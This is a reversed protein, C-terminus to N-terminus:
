PNIEKNYTGTGSHTHPHINYIFFSNNYNDSIFDSSTYYTLKNKENDHFLKTQYVPNNKILLHFM